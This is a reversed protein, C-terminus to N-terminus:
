QSKNQRSVALVGRLLLAIDPTRFNPLGLKRIWYSVTAVNGVAADAEGRAVAALTAQVTDFLVPSINTQEALFGHHSTNGQVAVRLGSLDRLGTILPGDERMVAVRYFSLYPASYLFHHRRAETSGVCPLVDLEHEAALEVAKAWPMKGAVEMNLGLRQNLVGVFDSAMGQYSGDEAVFEFPAFEPDIGLRITPHARIWAREVETLDVWHPVVTYRAVIERKEQATLDDIARNLITVLPRYDKRVGFSLRISKVEACWIPKLGMIVNQDILYSSVATNGVYADVEGNSVKLLAQLANDVMALRIDPYDKQLLEQIYYDKEVSVTRGKLDSLRTVEHESERVYIAHPFGLFPKTFLLAREREPTAAMGPCVDLEGAKLQKYLTPWAGTVPETTLGVRQSLLQFLDANIGRYVGDADVYEFPPWDSTAALRIVRHKDLWAREAATLVFAPSALSTARTSDADGQEPAACFSDPVLAVLCLLSALAAVWVRLLISVRWWPWELSGGAGLEVLGIIHGQISMMTGSRVHFLRSAVAIM